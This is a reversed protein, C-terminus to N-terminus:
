NVTSDKEFAESYCHPCRKASNSGPCHYCFYDKCKKCRYVWFYGSSPKRSCNPCMKLTGM